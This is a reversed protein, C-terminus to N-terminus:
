PLDQVERVPSDGHGDTVAPGDFYHAAMRGLNGTSYRYCNTRLLIPAAYTNTECPWPNFQLEAQEHSADMTHGIEHAVVTYPGRLSALAANGGQIAVGAVGPYPLERVLLVYKHRWSRSETPLGEIVAFNHATDAWRDLTQRDGYRMDTVGDVHGSFLVHIPRGPFLRRMDAAWWAVFDAHIDEVKRGRIDDHPFFYFTLENDPYRPAPGPGEPLSARTLAAQTPVNDNGAEGAAHTHPTESNDTFGSVTVGGEGVVTIDLHGRSYTMVAPEGQWLGAYMSGPPKGPFVVDIDLSEEVVLDGAAPGAMSDSGAEGKRTMGSGVNFHVAAPLGAQVAAEFQRLPHAAIAARVGAGPWCAAVALSLLSARLILPSNM